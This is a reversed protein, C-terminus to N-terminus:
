NRGKKEFHLTNTQEFMRPLNKFKKSEGITKNEELNFVFMNKTNTRKGTGKYYYLMCNSYTFGWPTFTSDIYGYQKNEIDYFGLVGRGAPWLAYKGDSTIYQWGFIMASDICSDNLFLKHSYGLPMDIDRIRKSTLTNKGCKSMGSCDEALTNRNICGTLCNVNVFEKQKGSTIVAQFGSDWPAVSIVGEPYKVVLLTDIVQGAFSIYKQGNRECYVNDNWTWIKGYWTKMFTQGFCQNGVCLNLLIITQYFLLIKGM